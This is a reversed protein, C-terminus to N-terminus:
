VDSGSGEESPDSVAVLKERGYLLNLKVFLFSNSYKCLVTNVSSKFPNSSLGSVSGCPRLYRKERYQLTLNENINKM